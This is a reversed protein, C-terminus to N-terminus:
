PQTGSSADYFDLGNEECWEQAVVTFARDRFAHWDNRVGANFVADKFRRFAGAGQLAILLQERLQEDTVEFAFQEMMRYEDIDFRDPLGIYEAPNEDIAQALAESEEDGGVTMHDDFVTVVEGSALHLYSRQDESQLEMGDLIDQIRVTIPM